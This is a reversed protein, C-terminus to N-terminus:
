LIIFSFEYECEFLFLISRSKGPPGTTLFTGALAPSVPTIGARPLDWM